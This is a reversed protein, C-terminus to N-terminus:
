LEGLLPSCMRMWGLGSKGIFKAYGEVVGGTPEIVWSVWKGLGKKDNERPYFVTYAVERIELAPRGTSTLTPSPNSFQSIPATRLYAHGLPLAGQQQPPPLSGSVLPPLRPVMILFLFSALLSILKILRITKAITYTRSPRLLSSKSLKHNFVTRELAEFHTDTCPHIKLTFYLTLASITRHRQRSQSKDDTM